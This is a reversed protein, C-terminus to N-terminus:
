PVFLKASTTQGKENRLRILYLGTKATFDIQGSESKLNKQFILEGQLDFLQLYLHNANKISYHIQDQSYYLSNVKLSQKELGVTLRICDTGLKAINTPYARSGSIGACITFNADSFSYNSDLTYANGDGVKLFKDVTMTKSFFITSDNISINYDIYLRDSPTIVNPGKNVVFIRIPESTNSQYHIPLPSQFNSVVFENQASINTAALVFSLLFLCYLKKM